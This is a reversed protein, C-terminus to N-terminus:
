PFYCTIKMVCLFAGTTYHKAQEGRIRFTTPESGSRTLGFVNLNTYTAEESHVCCNPTLAFVPRGVALTLIINRTLTAHREQPSNSKHAPVNFTLSLTDTKYM